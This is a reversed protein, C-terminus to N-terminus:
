RRQPLPQDQRQAKGDDAHSLTKAYKKLTDVAGQTVEPVYLAAAEQLKFIPVGGDVLKQLSQTIDEYEVAQHCIDYVIGLHRRM